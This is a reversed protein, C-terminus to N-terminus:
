EALRSLHPLLYVCGNCPNECAPMVRTVIYTALRLLAASCRGFFFPFIKSLSTTSTHPIFAPCPTNWAGLNGSGQRDFLFRWFHGADAAFPYIKRTMVLVPLMCKETVGLSWSKRGFKLLTTWQCKREM